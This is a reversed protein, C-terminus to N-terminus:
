RQADLPPGTTPPLPEASRTSPRSLRRRSRAPRRRQPLTKSTTDDPRTGPPRQRARWGSRREPRPAWSRREAVVAHGLYLSPLGREVQRAHPAISRSPPARSVRAGPAPPPPPRSLPAGGPPRQRGPTSARRSHRPLHAPGSSDSVSTQNIRIHQGPFARRHQHHDAFRRRGAGRPPHMPLSSTTRLM